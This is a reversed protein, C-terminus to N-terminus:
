SNMHAKCTRASPNAELRDLEIAENSIECKGYTGNEIKALATNVDALQKELQSAVAKNNEYEELGDAVDGEETNDTMVNGEVAEWDAPRDPNKRAVTELESELTSLEKLLLDKFHQTDLAM